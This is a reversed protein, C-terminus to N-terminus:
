SGNQAVQILRALLIAFLIVLGFNVVNAATDAFHGSLTSAFHLVFTHNYPFGPYASLSEPLGPRPLTGNDFLYQANYLWHSLVDVESPWKAAVVLLFPAGLAFMRLANSVVLKNPRDWLKWVAIAAAAATAWVVYKLDLTSLTAIATYAFTVLAWGCLISSNVLGRDSNVLRGILTFFLATGLVSLLGFFQPLSPFFDRYIDAM